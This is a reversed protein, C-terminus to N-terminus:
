RTRNWVVPTFNFRLLWDPGFADPSSLYNQIEFSVRFPMKGWRATKALGIGIPLSLKNGSAGEWDYEINPNSIVQWGNGLGYAFFVKLSTLNSDYEYDRADPDSVSTLQTLWAGAIGWDTIKGLAFEPGILTQDREISGDQSSPLILSLGYMTIWGNDNVGGYALEFELDGLYGHGDFFYGDRPMTDAFQRIRWETYEENDAYYTPEGLSIPIAMRFIINKGNDLPFPISPTIVYDWKSQDNAGPLDGQYTRYGFDNYVSGLSSVPNVLDIAIKDLDEAWAGGPLGWLAALCVFFPIRPSRRM